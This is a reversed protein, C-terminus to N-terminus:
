DAVRRLANQLTEAACTLEQTSANQAIVRATAHRSKGLHHVGAIIITTACPPRRKLSGIDTKPRRFNSQRRYAAGHAANTRLICDGSLARREEKLHRQRPGGRCRPVHNRHSSPSGVLSLFPRRKLPAAKRDPFLVMTDGSQTGIKCGNIRGEGTKCRQNLRHGLGAIFPDRTM